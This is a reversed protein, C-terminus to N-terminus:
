RGARCRGVPMQFSLLLGKNWFVERVAEAVAAGRTLRNKRREKRGGERSGKRGEQKGAQKSAQKELAAGSAYPLEWALPRILVAAALRCWLWLM